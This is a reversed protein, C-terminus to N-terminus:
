HFQRGEEAEQEAEKADKKGEAYNYGTVAATLSFILENGMNLQFGIDAMILGFAVVTFILKRSNVRFDNPLGNADRVVTVFEQAKFYGLLLIVAALINAPSVNAETLQAAAAAFVGGIVTIADPRLWKKM